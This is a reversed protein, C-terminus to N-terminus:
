VISETSCRPAAGETGETYRLAGGTATPTCRDAYEIPTVNALASHPRVTHYDNKWAALVARRHSHNSCRRM